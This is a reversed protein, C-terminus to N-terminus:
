LGVPTNLRRRGFLAAAGGMKTGRQARKIGTIWLAKKLRVAALQRDAPKVDRAIGHYGMFDRFRPENSGPLHSFEALVAGM